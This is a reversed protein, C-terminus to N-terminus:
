APAAALVRTRHAHLLEQRQRLLFNRFLALPQILVSGASLPSQKTILSHNEEDARLLGEGFRSPHLGGTM